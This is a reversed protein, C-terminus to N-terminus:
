KTQLKFLEQITPHMFLKDDMVFVCAEEGFFEKLFLNFQERFADPVQVKPSLEIKNKTAPLYQNAHIPIGHYRNFPEYM